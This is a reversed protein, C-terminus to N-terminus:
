HSKLFNEYISVYSSTDTGVEEARIGQILAMQGFCIILYRKKIANEKLKNKHILGMLIVFILNYIFIM